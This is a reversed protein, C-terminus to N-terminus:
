NFDNSRVAKVIYVKLQHTVFWTTRFINRTVAGNCQGNTEQNERNELAINARYQLLYM